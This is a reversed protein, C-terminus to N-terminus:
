NHTLSMSMLSSVSTLLEATTSFDLCPDTISVGQQLEELHAPIKQSGAELDSELMIGLIHSNGQQIQEIVNQFVEKQKFYQGQCNGHSCDILLRPPLELQRLETLTKQVTEANYNTGTNSGRLIVHAHPNGVSKVQRLKGTECIHMFMHPHRAVHVGNIACSINGDVTNKFGVPMPLHSALLRHVQSSTTRAGICGWTILDEIYPALHPTLFETAAPVGMEALQTLFSRAYALGQSIDHSGNLHPDHVIGKWGQRTRPKELYARMVVFCSDEVEKALKKLQKAYELGEEVNHISCPGVIVLLRPDQKELIQIVLQRSKAVFEEAKRSLPYQGKLDIPPILHM